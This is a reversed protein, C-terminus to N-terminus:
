KAAKLAALKIFASVTRNDKDAAKKVKAYEAKTYYSSVGKKDEKTM